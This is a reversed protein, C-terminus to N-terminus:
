KADQVGERAPDQANLFRLSLRVVLSNMEEELATMYAHMLGVPLPVDIISHLSYRFASVSSDVTSACTDLIRCDIALAIYAHVLIVLPVYIAFFVVVFPLYWRLIGAWVPEALSSSPVLKDSMAGLHCAFGSPYCRQMLLLSSRTMLYCNTTTLHSGPMDSLDTQLCLVCESPPCRSYFLRWCGRCM